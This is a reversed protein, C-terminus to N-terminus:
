IHHLKSETLMPHNKPVLPAKALSSFVVWIFLGMFGCFIGLDILGISWETGVTGPMIMVFHDLWHGALIAVGATIVFYMNRKSDRSMMVLIPFLFNLALAFMFPVKYEKFRIIYYTVEEPINAYWILMYQSFWLYTWFVSFAFMFKGLDQLHSHNLEPLYGNMKLYIAILTIVTLGSVFLGSFTYWGFLTSFWHTDISMIWDWAMMSSSVAFLVLFVASLKRKKAWLQAGDESSGADAQLSYKRFLKASIVWILLYIVSRIIFFGANLYGEKGAIIADYTASEPDMIGEAMWHWIHHVHFIGLISLGIILLVPIILFQSMAEMIRVVVVSWGVQAAYQLSLFFLAGLSIAMFFFINVFLRSWPKNAIQHHNDHGGENGDTVAHQEDTSHSTDGHDVEHSEAAVETPDSHTDHISEDHSGGVSMSFNLILSIIGVAM